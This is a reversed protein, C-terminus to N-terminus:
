RSPAIADFRHAVALEDAPLFNLRGSSAFASACAPARTSRARCAPAAGRCAPSPSRCTRTRACRARARCAARGRRAAAPPRRWARAADVFARNAVQRADHLDDDLLVEDADDGLLRPLRHWAAAFSFTSRSAPRPAAPAARSRRAVQAACGDRSANARRVRLIDVLLERLRAVTRRLRGIQMRILHVSRHAARARDGVHLAVLRGDPRRRLGRIRRAAADAISSPRGGSFTRTM